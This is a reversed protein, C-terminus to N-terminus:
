RQVEQVKLYVKSDNAGSSRSSSTVNSNSGSTWPGRGSVEAWVNMPVTLTTDVMNTQSGRANSNQNRSSFQVLATEGSIKTVLEGSNSVL